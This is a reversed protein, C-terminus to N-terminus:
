PWSTITMTTDFTSRSIAISGSWLARPSEPIARRLRPYLTQRRRGGSARHCPTGPQRGAPGGRRRGTEWLRAVHRLWLHATEINISMAAIHHQVYPDGAKKQSTVYDLAITTPRRPPVSSLRRTTRSSIRRGPKRSTNARSVRDFQNGPHVHSQLAGPLQRDGADRDPGVVFRGDDRSPDSLDCCLLLQSEVAGDRAPHGRTRRPQGASDGVTGRDRQDRIGQDRSSTATPWEPSPPATSRRAARARAGPARREVRGVQRRARRSRRVLADKQDDTAIGDLLALSNAHGEWCRALSLDSKAIEKTIMWLTLAEGRHPGLGLGGRVAESDDSREPGGQFSRRLRRSPFTATRDYHAARPAFRSQALTAFRDTLAQQEPTLELATM